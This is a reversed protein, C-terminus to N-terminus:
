KKNYSHIIIKHGVAAYMGVHTCEVNFQECIDHWAKQEGFSKSARNCYWNDFLLKAGESLHAQEFLHYLVDYTSEYLDCDLHVFGFKREPEISSLTDKYWGEYININQEDLFQSCLQKLENASLGKATGEGWAGSAVHPSQLDADKTSAPFGQFSDFLCLERPKMLHMTEHSSLHSSYYNITKAILSSSYGSCTGFEAFDGEVSSIFVYAISKVIEKYVDPFVIDSSLSTSLTEELSLWPLYYYNEKSLSIFDSFAVEQLSRPLVISIRSDDFGLSRCTAIIENIYTSCIILREVVNNTLQQPLMVPKGQFEGEKNSDVFCVVESLADSAQLYRQALSGTGWIAVSKNM